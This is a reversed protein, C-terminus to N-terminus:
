SPAARSECFAEGIMVDTECDMRESMGNMLDMKFVEEGTCGGTLLEMVLNSFSKALQLALELVMNGDSALLEMVM